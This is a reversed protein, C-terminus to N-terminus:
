DAAATSMKFHSAFAQIMAVTVYRYVGDLNQGSLITDAIHYCDQVVGVDNGGLMHHM